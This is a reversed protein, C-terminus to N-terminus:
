WRGARHRVIAPSDPNKVKLWDRSPRSYPATLRKSVIGELAIGVALAGQPVLNMAGVAQGPRVDDFNISSRPSSPRPRVVSTRFHTADSGVPFATYDTPIGGNERVLDNALLDFASRANHICDGVIAGWEIPIAEHERFRYIEYGSQADVEMVYTHPKRSEFARIAADLDALHKKARDIKVRVGSLPSTAM